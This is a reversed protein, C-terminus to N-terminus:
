TKKINHACDSLRKAYYVEGYYIKECPRSYHM